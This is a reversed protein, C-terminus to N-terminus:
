VNYVVFNLIKLNAEIYVKGNEEETFLILRKQVMKQFDKSKTSPSSNRYMAKIIPLSNLKDITIKGSEVLIYLIDVIRQNIKITETKKNKFLYNIYDKFMLQKVKKLVLSKIRKIEALYGKMGWLLFDWPDCTMRINRLHVLYESRHSSWFNALSWFCYNNIGNEFLILAELARATRGNGDAFPHIESLYYHALIAKLKPDHFLSTENKDNNLWNVFNKMATEIESRTRCLGGMRPTGFTVIFDRYDGPRNSMYDINETFYKHIQKIMQEAYKFHNRNKCCMDTIFQYVRRSNEAEQEIRELKENMDAKRFSEEIEDHQITSGEIALTAGIASILEGRIIKDTSGPFSPSDKIFQDISQIEQIINLFEWFRNLNKSFFQDQSNEILDFKILKEFTLEM